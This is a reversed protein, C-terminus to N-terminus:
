SAPAPRSRSSTSRASAGSRAAALDAAYHEFILPVLYTEYIKPISGTFAKDDAM